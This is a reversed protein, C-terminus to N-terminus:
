SATLRKGAQIMKPHVICQYEGDTSLSAENLGVLGKSVRIWQAEYRIMIEDPKIALLFRQEKGIVRYPIIRLRNSWKEFMPDNLWQFDDQRKFQELILSPLVDKMEHICTIMVPTKTIPDYLQNGSDILGKLSLSVDDFILVVDVISDFRIKKERIGAIRLHSFLWLLPFGVLVFLWSVPDGTGLSYTSLMGTTVQIEHQLFYHVAIMGGGVMFTAFYFTFLNEFFYRFRKFGFSIWVIILSFLLKGLPTQVYSSLPTFMLIVLLSGIFAGAVIRWWVANRKLIIATLWLLLGDFCFNLLWIVDLYVTM